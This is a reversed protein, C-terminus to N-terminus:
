AKQTAFDFSTKVGDYTFELERYRLAFEDMPRDGDDSGSQDYSAVTVDTLRVTALTTQQEGASRLTLLGEKIHEGRACAFFLEPSAKSSDATLLLDQAAAKGAGIGGSGLTTSNSIGWHFSEIPIQDEFGKVQSEGEIDGSFTEVIHIEVLM